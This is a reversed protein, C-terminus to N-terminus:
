LVDGEWRRCPEAEDARDRAPSVGNNVSWNALTTIVGPLVTCTSALVWGAHWRDRLRDGPDGRRRGPPRRQPSRSCGRTV